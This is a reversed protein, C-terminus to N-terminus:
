VQFCTPPRVLDSLKYQGRANRKIRTIPRDCTLGYETCVLSSPQDGKEQLSKSYTLAGSTWGSLSFGPQQACEYQRRLEKLIGPGISTASSTHRAQPRVKSVTESAGSMSMPEGRWRVDHTKVSIHESDERHSSRRRLNDPLLAWTSSSDESRQNGPFNGRGSSQREQGASCASFM